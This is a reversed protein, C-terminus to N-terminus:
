SIEELFDVLLDNFEEPKDLYATHGAGKIILLKAHPLKNKLQRGYEELPFINDKEGWVLLTPTQLNELDEDGIFKLTPGVLVLGAVKDPHAIAYALAFDGGMSPGIIVAQRRKANGKEWPFFGVKELLEDIVPICESVNQFNIKDSKSSKGSPLDLALFSPYGASVLCDFTGTKKWDDLSLSFGHFFLVGLKSIL